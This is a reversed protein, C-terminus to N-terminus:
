HKWLKMENIAKLKAQKFIEKDYDSIKTIKIWLKSELIKIKNEMQSIAIWNMVWRQNKYHSYFDIARNCIEIQEKITKM